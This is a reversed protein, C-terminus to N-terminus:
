NLRTLEEIKTKCYDYGEFFASSYVISFMMIAAPDLKRGLLEESQKIYKSFRVAAELGLEKDEVKM